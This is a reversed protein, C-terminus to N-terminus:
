AEDELLQKVQETTVRRGGKGFLEGKIRVLKPRPFQASKMRKLIVIDAGQPEIKIVDGPQFAKIVARQKQDLTTTM